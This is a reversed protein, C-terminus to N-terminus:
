VYSILRLVRLPFMFWLKHQLAIVGTLLILCRDNDLGFLGFTISRYSLLYRLSEEVIAAKSSTPLATFLPSVNILKLVQSEVKKGKQKCTITNFQIHKYIYLFLFVIPFYFVSLSSSTPTM